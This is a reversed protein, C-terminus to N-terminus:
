TTLLWQLSGVLWEPCGLKRLEDLGRTLRQEETWWELDRQRAIRALQESANPMEMAVEEEIRTCLREARERNRVSVRVGQADIRAHTAEHAIILAIEQVALSQITSVRILCARLSPWYASGTGTTLYLRVGRSQLQHFRLASAQELVTLANRIKDFTDSPAAGSLDRIEVGHVMRRASMAALLRMSLLRLPTTVLGVLARLFRKM